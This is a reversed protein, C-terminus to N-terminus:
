FPLMPVAASGQAARKIERGKEERLRAETAASIEADRKIKPAKKAAAEENAKLTARLMDGEVGKPFGM